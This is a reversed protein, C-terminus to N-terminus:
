GKMLGAATLAKTIIAGIDTRPAGAQEPTAGFAKGNSNERSLSPMPVPLEVRQERLRYRDVLDHNDLTINVLRRTM